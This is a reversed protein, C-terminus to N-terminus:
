LLAQLEHRRNGMETAFRGGLDARPMQHPAKSEGVNKSPGSPIALERDIRVGKANDRSRPTLAVPKAHHRCATALRARLAAQNDDIAVGDASLAFCSQAPIVRQEHSEVVQRVSTVIAINQEIRRDVSPPCVIRRM